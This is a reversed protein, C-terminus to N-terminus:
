WFGQRLFSLPWPFFDRSLVRGNDLLDGHEGATFFKCEGEADRWRSIFSLTSM